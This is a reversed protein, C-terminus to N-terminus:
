TYSAASSGTVHVHHFQLLVRNNGKKRIQVTVAVGASSSFERLLLYFSMVFRSIRWATSYGERVEARGGGRKRPDVEEDGEEETVLTERAEGGGRWLFDRGGFWEAWLEELSQMNCLQARGEAWM